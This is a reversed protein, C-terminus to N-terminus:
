FSEFLKSCFAIELLQNTVVLLSFTVHIPNNKLNVDIKDELYQIYNKRVKYM